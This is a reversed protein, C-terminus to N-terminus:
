NKEELTRPNKDFTLSTFIILPLTHSTRKGKETLAVTSVGKERERERERASDHRRRRERHRRVIDTKSDDTTTIIFSPHITPPHLISASCKDLRCHLVFHFTHFPHQGVHGRLLDSMRVVYTERERERKLQRDRRSKQLIEREEGGQVIM